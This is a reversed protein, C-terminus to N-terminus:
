HPPHEGPWFHHGIERIKDTGEQALPYAARLHDEERGDKFMKQVEATSTQFLRVAALYDTHKARLSEPPRLARLRKEADRYAAIAKEVRQKLDAHSLDRNLYFIQGLTLRLTTHEVGVHIPGLARIYAEEAPTFAPRQPSNDRVSPRPTVVPVLTPKPQSVIGFVVAAGLVGVLALSMIAVRLSPLVGYSRLPKASVNGTTGPVITPHSQRM